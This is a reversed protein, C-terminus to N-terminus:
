VANNDTGSENFRQAQFSQKRGEHALHAFDAM